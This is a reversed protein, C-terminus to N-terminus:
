GLYKKGGYLAFPRNRRDRHILVHQVDYRPRRDVYHVHVMAFSQQWDPLRGAYEAHKTPDSLHGIPHAAHSRGVGSSDASTAIAYGDRHYHGVLTTQNPYRLLISRALNVGGSSRGLIVDGHEIVLSGLRVQSGQPLVEISEPLRLAAKVTLSGVTGTRVAVDNIWDEHNGEVMIARDYSALWEVLERGTDAEELLSGNEIASLRAKNGHPSVAACDFIDGNAVPIVKNQSSVVEMMLNVARRDHIGIHVDNFVALISGDPVEAQALRRVVM